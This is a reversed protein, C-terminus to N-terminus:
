FFCLAVDPWLCYRRYSISDSLTSDKYRIGAFSATQIHDYVAQNLALLRNLYYNSNYNPVWTNGSKWDKVSESQMLQHLYEPYAGTGGDYAQLGENPTGEPYVTM